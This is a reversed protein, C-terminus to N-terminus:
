LPDRMAFLTDLTGDRESTTAFAGDLHDGVRIQHGPAWGDRVAADLDAGIGLSAIGCRYRYYFVRGDVLTGQYQEPCASCTMRYSAILPHSLSM